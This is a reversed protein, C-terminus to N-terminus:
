DDDTPEEASLSLLDLVVEYVVDQTVESSGDDLAATVVEDVAAVLQSDWVRGSADRPPEGVGGSSSSSSSGAAASAEAEAGAAAAGAAASSSSQFGTGCWQGFVSAGAYSSSSSSSSGGGGGRGGTAGEDQGPGRAEEKGAKKGAARAERQLRNDEARWERHTADWKDLFPPNRLVANSQWKM